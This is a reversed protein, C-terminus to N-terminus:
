RFGCISVWCMWYRVLVEGPVERLGMRSIIWTSSTARRRDVPGLHGIIYGNMHFKAPKVLSHGFPDTLLPAAGILALNDLYKLGSPSQANYVSVRTQFNLSNTDVHRTRRLAGRVHTKTIKPWPDFLKRPLHIQNRQEPISKLKRNPPNKPNRPSLKNLQSHNKNYSSISSRRLKEIKFNTFILKLYGNKYTNKNQTDSKTLVQHKLKRANYNNKSASCLQEINNM